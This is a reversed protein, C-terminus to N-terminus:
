ELRGFGWQREECWWCNGCHGDALAPNECSRTLPFLTDTLGLASYIGAIDKKNYNIFPMVIGSAETPRVVGANRISYTSSDLKDNFTALVDDAPHQTTGLYMKNIKGSNLEAKFMTIMDTLNQSDVFVTRNQINNNGTLDICKGIVDLAYHPARRGKAKSAFNYAIIPGTVNTMLMYLLIASDAGGSLSIGVPGPHIPVDINNVTIINM